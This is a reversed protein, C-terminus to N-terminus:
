VRRAQPQGVAVNRPEVDGEPVARLDMEEQLPNSTSLGEESVYLGVTRPKPTPMKSIVCETEFGVYLDGVEGEKPKFSKVTLKVQGPRGTADSAEGIARVQTIIKQLFAEGGLRQLIQANTMRKAM